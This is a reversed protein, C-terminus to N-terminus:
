LLLLLLRRANEVLHSPFGRAAFADPALCVSNEIDRCFQEELQTVLAPSHLV